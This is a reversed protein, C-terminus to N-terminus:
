AEVKRSANARPAHASPLEYLFRRRESQEARFVVAEPVVLGVFIVVVGWAACTTPDWGPLGGYAAVVKPLRSARKHM